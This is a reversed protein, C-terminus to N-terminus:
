WFYNDWLKKWRLYPIKVFLKIAIRGKVFGVLKSVSLVPPTEVVLRVHDTQVDLEVIRFKKTNLFSMSIGSFRSQLM